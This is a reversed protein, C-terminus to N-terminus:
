RYIYIERYIYTYIYLSGVYAYTSQNTWQIARYKLICVKRRLLFIPIGIWRKKTDVCVMCVMFSLVPICCEVTWGMVFGNENVIYWFPRKYVLSSYILFSMRLCVLWSLGVQKVPAQGNDNGNRHPPRAPAKWVLARVYCACIYM